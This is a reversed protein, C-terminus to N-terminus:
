EGHDKAHKLLDMMAKGSLVGPHVSDPLNPFKQLACEAECPIGLDTSLRGETTQKTTTSGLTTFSVARAPRFAPAFADSQQIVLFTLISGLSLKM